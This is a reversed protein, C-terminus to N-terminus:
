KTLAEDNYLIPIKNYLGCRCTGEEIERFEKCMCEHDDDKILSCPCYGGNEKILKRIEIARTTDATTVIDSVLQFRYKQKVDPYKEHDVESLFETLPRVWMHLDNVRYYIVMDEETESNTAIGMVVYENGKFHKYICNVKVMRDMTDINKM